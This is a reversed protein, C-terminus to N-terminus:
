IFKYRKSLYNAWLWDVLYEYGYQNPHTIELPFKLNAHEWIGYPVKDEITGKEYELLIQNLNNKKYTIYMTEDVEYYQNVFKEDIYKEFIDFFIVNEKYGYSKIWNQYFMYIQQAINEYVREDFVKVFFDQLFENTFKKETESTYEHQQNFWNDKSTSNLLENKEFSLQRNIPNKNGILGGLEQNEYNLAYPFKIQLHTDRYKSTFGFLCLDTPKLNKLVDNFRQYQTYNDSGQIAFNIIESNTYKRLFKEWTTKRRWEKLEEFSLNPELFKILKEGNSTHYVEMKEYAGQGEVWSDGFLFIRNINKM